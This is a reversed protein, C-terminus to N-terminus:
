RRANAQEDTALGLIQDRHVACGGLVEANVGAGKDEINLGRFSLLVEKVGVVLSKVANFPALSTGPRAQPRGTRGCANSKNHAVRVEDKKM